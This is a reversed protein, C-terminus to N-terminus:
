VTSPLFCSQHLSPSVEEGQKQTTAATKDYTTAQALHRERPEWLEEAAVQGTRVESSRSAAPMRLREKEEWGRWRWGAASRRQLDGM